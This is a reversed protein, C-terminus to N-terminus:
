PKLGSQAVIDTLTGALHWKISRALTHVFAAMVAIVCLMKELFNGVILLQVNTFLFVACFLQAVLPVIMLKTTSLAASPLVITAAALSSGSPTVPTSNYPLVGSAHESVFHILRLCTFVGANIYTVFLLWGPVPPMIQPVFKLSVWVCAQNPSLGVM